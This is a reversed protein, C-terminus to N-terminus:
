NICQVKYTKRVKFSSAPQTTAFDFFDAGKYGWQKCKEQARLLGSETKVVVTKYGPNYEETSLTITGASKDGDIVHLEPYITCNTVTFAIAIFLLKKM